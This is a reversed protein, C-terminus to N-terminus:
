DFIDLVKNKSSKRRKKKNVASKTSKKKKRGAKLRKVAKTKKNKKKKKSQKRRKKKNSSKRARGVYQLQSARKLALGKYGSGEMLESIKENAKRKLKLGSEALRSNLSDKFSMNNETVDDLVNIGARLAERGVARAGKALFPLARRFLGGLFSGIGHGRQGRSGVYVSTVGRGGGVGQANYYADYYNM